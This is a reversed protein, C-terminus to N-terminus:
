FIVHERDDHIRGQKAIYSDSTLLLSLLLILFLIVNNRETLSCLIIEFCVQQELAVQEILAARLRLEQAEQSEVKNKSAARFAVQLAHAQEQVAQLEMLIPTVKGRKLKHSFNMVVPTSEIACNNSGRVIRFFGRDGWRTGWTNKIIWYKVPKAYSTFDTGYGVVTTAHNVKMWHAEKPGTKRSRFIGRKYYFLERPVQLAAAFPGNKALEQMM